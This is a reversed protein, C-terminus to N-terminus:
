EPKQVILTFSPGKGSNKRDVTWQRAVKESFFPGVTHGKTKDALFSPTEDNDLFCTTEGLQHLYWKALNFQPM